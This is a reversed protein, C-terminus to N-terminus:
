YAPSSWLVAIVAIVAGVHIVPESAGGPLVDKELDDIDFAFVNYDKLINM